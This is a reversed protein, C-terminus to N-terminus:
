HVPGAPSEPPIKKEEEAGAPKVLLEPLDDKGIQDLMGGLGLAKVAGFFVQNVEGVAEWLHLAESPYLDLLGELSLGTCLSLIQELLDKIGALDPRGDEPSAYGSQDEAAVDTWSSMLELVERLTLERVTIKKDGLDIEKTKPM